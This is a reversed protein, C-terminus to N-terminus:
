ASRNMDTRWAVQPEHGTDFLEVGAETTRYHRWTLSYRIFIGLESGCLTCYPAPDDADDTEMGGDAALEDVLQMYDMVAAFTGPAWWSLWTLRDALQQRDLGRLRGEAHNDAVQHTGPCPQPVSKHM